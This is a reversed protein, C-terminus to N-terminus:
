VLCIFINQTKILVKPYSSIGTKKVTALALLNKYKEYLNKIRITICKGKLLIENKNQFTRPM